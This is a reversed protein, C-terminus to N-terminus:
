LEGSGIQAGKPQDCLRRGVDYMPLFLEMRRETNGGDDAILDNSFMNGFISEFPDPSLTVSRLKPTLGDDETGDEVLFLVLPRGAAYICALLGQDVTFPWSKEDGSKEIRQFRADEAKPLSFMSKENALATSTAAFVIALSILLKNHM